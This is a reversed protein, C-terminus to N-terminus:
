PAMAGLIGLDRFDSTAPLSLIYADVRMGHKVCWERNGLNDVNALDEPAKISEYVDSDLLYALDVDNPDLTSSVFSGALWIRNVSGAACEVM